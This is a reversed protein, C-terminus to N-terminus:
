LDQTKPGSQHSGTRAHQLWDTARDLEDPTALTKAPNLILSVMEAHEDKERTLQKTLADTFEGEIAHKWNLNYTSMNYVVEEPKGIQFILAHHDSLAGITTDVHHGSLVNMGSAMKNKFTLDIVSAHGLTDERTPVFPENCLSFGNGETWELTQRTRPCATTVRNDWSPHRINWDGTIITPTTPDLHTGALRDITWDTNEGLPKQNYLNITRTPPHPSGERKVDLVMVDTDTILDNRLTIELPTGLRYFAAVRPREDDRLPRKPLIMQWGPFTTTAYTNNVREWWPEQILFLDLTPDQKETIHYMATHM